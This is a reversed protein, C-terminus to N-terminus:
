LPPNKKRRFNAVGSELGLDGFSMQGLHDTKTDQNERPNKDENRNRLHSTHIGRKETV